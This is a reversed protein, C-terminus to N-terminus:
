QPCEEQDKSLLLGRGKRDREVRKEIRSVWTSQRDSKIYNRAQWRLEPSIEESRYLHEEDRTVEREMAKSCTFSRTKDQAQSDGASENRQLNLEERFKSRYSQTNTTSTRRAPTAPLQKTSYQEVEHEPPAPFGHQSSRKVISLYSDHKATSRRHADDLASSVEEAWIRDESLPSVLAQNDCVPTFTPTAANQSVTANWPWSESRAARLDYLDGGAQVPWAESDVTEPEAAAQTPHVVQPVDSTPKLMGKLCGETNRRMRKFLGANFTANGDM